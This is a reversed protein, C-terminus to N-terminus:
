PEPYDSITEPAQPAQRRHQVSVNSDDFRRRSKHKLRSIQLEEQGPKSTFVTFFIGKRLELTTMGVAEGVYYTNGHQDKMPHLDICLRGGNMTTERRSKHRRNPDLPAIQLEECGDESLFVFFSAGCDFDLTGPWQLKGIYYPQGNSDRPIKTLEVKGKAEPDIFFTEM